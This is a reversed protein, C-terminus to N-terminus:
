THPYYQDIDPARRPRFGGFMGWLESAARRGQDATIRRLTMSSRPFSAEPSFAHWMSTDRGEARL